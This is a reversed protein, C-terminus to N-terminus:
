RIEGEDEDPFLDEIKGEKVISYGQENKYGFDHEKMHIIARNLAEAKSKESGGLGYSVRLHNGLMKRSSLILVYHGKNLEHGTKEDSFLDYITEEKVPEEADLLTKKAKAQAEKITNGVELAYKVSSGQEDKSVVIGMQSYININISFVFLLISFYTLVLKFKTM